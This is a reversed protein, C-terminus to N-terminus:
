RCQPLFYVFRSVASVQAQADHGALVYPDAFVVRSPAEQDRDWAVDTRYWYHSVGPRIAWVDEAADYYIRYSYATTAVPLGTSWSYGQWSVQYMVVSEGTGLTTTYRRQQAVSTIHSLGQVTLITFDAPDPNSSWDSSFQSANVSKQDWSSFASFPDCAAAAPLSTDSFSLKLTASPGNADQVPHTRVGGLVILNDSADVAAAFAAHLSVASNFDTLSPALTYSSGQYTVDPRAQMQFLSATGYTLAAMIAAFLVFGAIMEALSFGATAPRRSTLPM